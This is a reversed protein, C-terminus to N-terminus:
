TIRAAALSRWKVELETMTFWPFGASQKNRSVFPRALNKKIGLFPFLDNKM